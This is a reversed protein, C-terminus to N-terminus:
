DKLQQVSADAHMLSALAGFYSLEFVDYNSGSNLAKTLYIQCLKLAVSIATSSAWGQHFFAMQLLHFICRSASRRDRKAKDLTFLWICSSFALKNTILKLNDSSVSHRTAEEVLPTFWLEYGDLLFRAARTANESYNQLPEVDWFHQELYLLGLMFSKSLLSVTVDRTTWLAIDIELFSCIISDNLVKGFDRDLLNELRSLVLITNICKNCCHQLSASLGKFDFSWTYATMKSTFKSAFKKTRPEPLNLHYSCSTYFCGSLGHSLPSVTIKQKSPPTAGLGRFLTNRAAETKGELFIHETAAMCFLKRLSKMDFFQTYGMWATENFRGCASQSNYKLDQDIFISRKQTVIDTFHIRELRYFYPYRLDYRFELVIKPTESSLDCKLSHYSSSSAKSAKRLMEYVYTSDSTDLQRRSQLAILLLDIRRADLLYNCLHEFTAREEQELYNWQADEGPANPSTLIAHYLIRGFIKYCNSLLALLLLHCTLM